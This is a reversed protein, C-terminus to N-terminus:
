PPTSPTKWTGTRSHSNLSGTPVASSSASISRWIASRFLARSLFSKARASSILFAMAACPTMSSSRDSPVVRQFRHAERSRGVQEVAHMRHEFREPRLVYPDVPDVQLLATPTARDLLNQPQGLGAVHGHGELRAPVQIPPGPGSPVWAGPAEGRRLGVRRQLPKGSG